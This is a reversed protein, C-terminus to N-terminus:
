VQQNSGSRRSKFVKDVAADAADRADSVDCNIDDLAMEFVTVWLIAEEGALVEKGRSTIRDLPQADPPMQVVVYPDNKTYSTLLSEKDRIIRYAKTTAWVTALMLCGSYLIFLLPDVPIPTSM